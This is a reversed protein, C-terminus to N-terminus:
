YNPSLCLGRRFDIGCMSYAVKQTLAEKGRL